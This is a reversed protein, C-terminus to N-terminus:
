RRGETTRIVEAITPPPGDNWLRLLVGVPIGAVLAALLWGRFSSAGLMLATVITLSVWALSIWLPLNMSAM